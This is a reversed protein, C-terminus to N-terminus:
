KEVWPLLAQRSQGRVIWRALREVAEEIEAAVADFIAPPEGIPDAIDLAEHNPDLDAEITRDGDEVSPADFAPVERLTVIRKWRIPALQQAVSRHKRTMCLVLNQEAAIRESLLRSQFGSAEIGREHLTRASEPHIPYGNRAHTGASTVTWDMNLARGREALM